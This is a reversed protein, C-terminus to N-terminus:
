KKFRLSAKKYLIGLVSIALVSLGIRTGWFRFPHCKQYLYSGAKQVLFNPANTKIFNLYAEYIKCYSEKYISIFNDIEQPINPIKGKPDQYANWTSLTTEFNDSAYMSEMGVIRMGILFIYFFRKM